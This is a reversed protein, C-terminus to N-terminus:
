ISLIRDSPNFLAKATGKDLPESLVKQRLRCMKRGSTEFAYEHCLTVPEPIFSYEECNENMQSAKAKQIFAM